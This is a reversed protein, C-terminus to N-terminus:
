LEINNTESKIEKITKDRLISKKIVGNDFTFKKTRYEKPIYQIPCNYFVTKGEERDGNEIILDKINTIGSYQFDISGEFNGKAIKLAKCDRFSASWGNQNAGKVNLNEIKEIGSLQFTVFGKFNGTAIKLHKCNYLNASWGENDTGSFTLLPSLHTINSDVLETYTTIEIPEKLNKCWSPNEGILEKFMKGTIQKM